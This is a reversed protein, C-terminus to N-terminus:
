ISSDGGIGRPICVVFRTGGEPPCEVEIRGGHLDVIHRSIYLGLGMGALYAGQHAQYFRDFIGQRHEAPIGIGGDAVELCVTEALPAPVEVHIPGGEPSYKIANDILNTVVQELRLPDVLALVESPVRVTIKHRSTSAQATEVVGKVLRAVDTVKKELALRGAEIRSVDLLQSVLRSLKDSQQDIVQLAHRVRNPDMQGESDFQRVILQAFGRLSTVPTKLEHSAVSLFEDRLRVAEQAEGYLRANDVALAARRALEEALALDEPGYRRGSEVAAFTIVGITRGRALLPVVMVSKAGLERLMRLHEADYAMGALLSDPVRPYIESQGTRSVTLVPHPRGPGYPYRRQMEGLLKIKSSDTSSMAVRRPTPEEAMDIVCWDALVFTALRAVSQLTTQYDLSTALLTGAEALFSQAEETRKHKTANYFTSVAAVIRGEEDYIPASSIRMTGRPGDKRRFGVEEEAVVEGSLISRSPPWEEPRYPRGDPHFAKFQSYQELSEPLKSPRGMLREGHKNVLAMKGSPAELILVGVPMQEIITQLKAREGEVDLLLRERDREGLVEPLIDRSSILIGVGSSLPVPSISIEWWGEGHQFDHRLRSIRAKKGARVSAYVSAVLQRSGPFLDLIDIGLVQEATLGTSRLWEENAMLVRSDAGVLCLGVGTQGFIAELLAAGDGSQGLLSEWGQGARVPSPSTM